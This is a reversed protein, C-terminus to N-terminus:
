PINYGIKELEVKMTDKLGQSPQVLPKRVSGGPIGLLNMGAKVPGPYPEAEMMTYLNAMKLNLEAAEKWQGAKVYSYLQTYEKPLLNMLIGFGGDAGVLLGPLILHEYGQFVTFNEVGKTKAIVKCTHEMDATDKLSVINKHQALEYILEPSLDVSTSLPNNYVMIGLKSGDAIETFFGKVGEETTTQYYPPLVLGWTAGCEAAYNALAITDPATYMGVGALVPVRGAVFECGKKIVEKHEEHSMTRYEGTSGAILIGDLGFGLVYDIVKKYADFDISQDEKFPTVVPVFMGKPLKKM